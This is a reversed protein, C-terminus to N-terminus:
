FECSVNLFLQKLREVLLAVFIDDKGFISGRRAGTGDFGKLVADPICLEEAGVAILDVANQDAEGVEAIFNADDVGEETGFEIHGHKHLSAVVVVVLDIEVATAIGEAALDRDAVVEILIADGIGEGAEVGVADIALLELLIHVFEGADAAYHTAQAVAADSLNSSTGKAEVGAAGALLQELAAADGNNGGVQRLDKKGGLLDGVVIRGQKGLQLIDM